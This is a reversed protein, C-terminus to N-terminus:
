THGRTKQIAGPPQFCLMGACALIPGFRALRLFQLGGNLASCTRFPDQNHSFESISKAFLFKTKVEILKFFLLAPSPQRSLVISFVIRRVKRARVDERLRPGFCVDLRSNEVDARGEVSASM